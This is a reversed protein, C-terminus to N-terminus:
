PLVQFALIHGNAFPGEVEKVTTKRSLDDYGLDMLTHLTALNEDAALILTESTPRMNVTDNWVRVKWLRLKPDTRPIDPLAKGIDDGYLIKAAQCTSCLDFPTQRLLITGCGTCTNQIGM